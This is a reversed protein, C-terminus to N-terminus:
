ASREVNRHGIVLAVIAALYPLIVLFQYPLDPYITQLRIQTAEAIGFGLSSLFAIFPRRRGLMV